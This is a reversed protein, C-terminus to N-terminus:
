IGRLRSSPVRSVDTHKAMYVENDKTNSLMIVGAGIVNAKSIKIHDRITSNLGIFCNNSINSSGGITVQASIFCHNDIKTHYGIHTGSWIINNDGIKSFPQITCDELIFCNEGIKVNDYITTSPHVYSIFGFGKKKAKLFKDERLKNVKTYGIPILMKYEKTTHTKEIDEFPFVPLNCFSKEVYFEKDVCFAVVKYKQDKSLLYYALESVEGLGFIIIKEM